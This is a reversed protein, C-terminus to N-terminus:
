WYGLKIRMGIRPDERGEWHGPMDRSLATATTELRNKDWMVYGRQRFTQPVWYGYLNSAEGTWYLVWAYPPQSPTDKEFSIDDQLDQAADYESYWRNRRESQITWRYTKDIWAESSSGGHNERCCEISQRVLQVLQNHDTTKLITSLLIPGQRGM